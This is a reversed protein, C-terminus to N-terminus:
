KQKGKVTDALSLLKSNIQLKAQAAGELNVELRVKGEKRALNIIGGQETFQESEGVTLVPLGKVRGLIDPLHKSESDSIFLIHCKALDDASEIQRIAISRGGISKGAVTKRLDDGFKNEGHVGITIPLNTEGLASAPWEVYKSFNLLFLAKVQYESLSVEGGAAPPPGSLVALSALLVFFHRSGCNYTRKQLLM